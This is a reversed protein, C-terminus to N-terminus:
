YYPIPVREKHGDVVIFEDSVLFEFNPKNKVMQIFRDCQKNDFFLKSIWIRKITDPLYDYKIHGQKMHFIDTMAINYRLDIEELNPFYTFDGVVENALWGKISLSTLSKPFDSLKITYNCDDIRCDRGESYSLDLKKLQKCRSLNLISFDFDDTFENAHLDLIELDPPFYFPKPSKGLLNYSCFLRKITLPLKPLTRLSTGQIALQRLDSPFIFSPTIWKINRGSLKFEKVTNPIRFIDDNLETIGNGEVDLYQLNKARINIKRLKAGSITLTLLSDPLECDFSGCTLFSICLDSLYSFQRIYDFDLIDGSMTLKRLNRPLPGLNMFTEYTPLKLELLNDLVNRPSDSFLCGRTYERPYSDSHIVLRELSQPLKLIYGNAEDDRWLLSHLIEEGFELEKLGDPLRSFTEDNDNGDNHNNDDHNDDDEDYDEDYDEDDGSYNKKYLTADNCKLSVLSSCQTLLESFSIEDTVRLQKLNKPLILACNNDCDVTELHNLKSLDIHDHVEFDWDYGFEINLSKLGQPFHFNSLDRNSDDKMICEFHEVLENVGKTPFKSHIRMRDIIGFQYFEEYKPNEYNIIDDYSERTIFSQKQLQIKHETDSIDIGVLKYHCKEFMLFLIPLIEVKENFKMNSLDITINVNKLTDPYSQCIENFLIPDYFTINQIYKATNNKIMSILRNYPIIQPPHYIKFEHGFPFDIILDYQNHHEIGIVQVNQYLLKLVYPELEPIIQLEIISRHSLYQFIKNIVEDPLDLLTLKTM